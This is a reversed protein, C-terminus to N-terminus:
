RIHDVCIPNPRFGGQGESMKDHKAMATGARQDLIDCCTKGVTTILLLTIGRYNGPDAKDGEKFLNM